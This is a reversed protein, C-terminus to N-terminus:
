DNGKLWANWLQSILGGLDNGPQNRYNEWLDNIHGPHTHYERSGRMCIFPRGTLQHHGTNFVNTPNPALTALITGDLTMLTISPPLENWNSCEFKLRLGTRGEATFGIDIIPYEIKYLNWGRSNFLRPILGQTQQEFLAKSALEHMVAVVKMRAGIM